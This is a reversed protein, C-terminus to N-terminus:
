PRPDLELNIIYEEVAHKENSEYGYYKVFEDYSLKHVMPDSFHARHLGAPAFWPETIDHVDGKILGM